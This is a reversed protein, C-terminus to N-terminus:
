EDDLATGDSHHKDYVVTFVLWTLALIFLLALSSISDPNIYLIALGYIAALFMDAVGRCIAAFGFELRTWYLFAISMAFSGATVGWVSGLAGWKSILMLAVILQVLLSLGMAWCYTYPSKGAFARAWDPFTILQSSWGVMLVFFCTIALGQKLFAISPFVLPFLLVVGAISVPYFIITGYRATRRGRELLEIRSKENGDQKLRGYAPVYTQWLVTHLALCALYPLMGINLIAVDTLEAFLALLLKPLRNVVMLFLFGIGFPLSKFFLRSLSDMKESHSSNIMRSHIQWNVISWGAGASLSIGAAMAFESVHDHGTFALVCFLLSMGGREIIRSIAEHKTQGISRLAGRHSNSFLFVAIGFLLVLLSPLPWLPAIMSHTFPAVIVFLVLGLVVQLRTIRSVLSRGESGFRDTDRSLLASFGPDMLVLVTFALDLVIVYRGYEAAELKWTLIVQSLIGAITAIIEASFLWTAESEPAPRPLAIEDVIAAM